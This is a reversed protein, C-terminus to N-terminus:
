KASIPLMPWQDELLECFLQYDEDFQEDDYKNVIIQLPLIHPQSEDAQEKWCHYQIKNEALMATSEKLQQIPDSQLDIILLILDSTRIMDMMEPEVHERNLPPTDILQIQINEVPMMGPTPT